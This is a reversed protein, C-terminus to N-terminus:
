ALIYQFTSEQICCIVVKVLLFVPKYKCTLCYYTRNHYSIVLRNSSSDDGGGGGGDGDGSSCTSYIPSM